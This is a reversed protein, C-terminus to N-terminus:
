LTIWQVKWEDVPFSGDDVKQECPQACADATVDLDDMNVNATYRPVIVGHDHAGGSM